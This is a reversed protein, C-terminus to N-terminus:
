EDDEPSSDKTLDRKAWGEEFTAGDEVEKIYKDSYHQLCQQYSPRDMLMAKLRQALQRADVYAFYLGRTTPSTPVADKVGALWIPSITGTAKSSTAPLTTPTDDVTSGEPLAPASEDIIVEVVPKASPATNAQPPSPVPSAPTDTVPDTPAEPLQPGYENSETSPGAQPATYNAWQEVASRGLQIARPFLTTSRRLREKRAMEATAPFYEEAAPNYQKSDPDLNALREKLTRKWAEVAKPRDQAIEALKRATLHEGLYLRSDPDILGVPDHASYDPRFNALAQLAVKANNM